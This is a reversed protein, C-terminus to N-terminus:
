DVPPTAEVIPAFFLANLLLKNTGYWFARFNPNDVMRVIAGDGLRDAIVAPTGQLRAYNETSVYGSLLPADTYAAVTTYPNAQPELFIRSNRFVPLRSRSYGYALPHTLDLDVEFIAGGILQEEREDRHDGYPRREPREGPEPPTTIRAEAPREPDEPRDATPIEGHNQPDFVHERTWVTAGQLAVLVGGGTVWGRLKEAVADPLGRYDGDPLILHSYRDLEVGEFTEVGLLSVPVHFRHDLLHWV